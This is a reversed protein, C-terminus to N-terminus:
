HLSELAAPHDSRAGHYADMATDFAKLDEAVKAAYSDRAGPDAATVHMAMDVQTQAAAVKLGDLARVSALNGSVIRDTAASNAALSQIGLVGIIMTLALARGATGLM